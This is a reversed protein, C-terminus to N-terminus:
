WRADGAPEMMLRRLGTLAVAYAVAAGAFIALGRVPMGLTSRLAGFWPQETANAVAAQVWLWATHGSQQLAPASWRLADAPHAGAWVFGGAVAGTIVLGAGVARRRAAIARPTATVAVPVAGVTVRSMVREAFGAAPEFAPLAALAAVLRRDREVVIGCVACTALHSMAREGGSGAILNDLEDSTLHGSDIM